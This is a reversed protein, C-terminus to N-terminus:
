AVRTVWMLRAVRAPVTHDGTSTSLTVGDPDRGTVQADRGPILDSTALLALAEKDLELKESIRAVVVAGPEADALSVHAKTDYRNHSGPIPNGHPCTTPDDLLRVMADEVNDSIVHEWRGAEHHAEAWSLGLVDTLFREALRHRRAVIEALERGRKTLHIQKKADLEVLGQKQMRQITAWATPPTVNMWRALRASIAREGETELSYVTQLYDEVTATPSSAADKPM